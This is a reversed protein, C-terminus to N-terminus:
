AHRRLGVASAATKEPDIPKQGIVQGGFGFRVASLMTEDFTHERRSRFRTFLAATIMDAAVAEEIAVEVRWRGQGLLLNM